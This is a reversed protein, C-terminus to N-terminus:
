KLYHRELARLQELRGAHRGGEFPTTLWLEMIVRALRPATQDASLALCNADNHQRSLRATYESACLAARIGPVKNALISMGIGTGCVLVARDADGRAVLEAARRGYDTYDCPEDDFTGVDVVDYRLERAAALLAAKLAFGRHDAAFAVKM